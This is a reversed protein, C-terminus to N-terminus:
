DVHFQSPGLPGGLLWRRWTSSGGGGALVVKRGSGSGQALHTPAEQQMWVEPSSCPQNSTLLWSGQFHKTVNQCLLLSVRHTQNCLRLIADSKRIIHRDLVKMPQGVGMLSWPVVMAISHWPDPAKWWHVQPERKRWQTLRGRPKTNNQKIQKNTKNKQMTICKLLVIFVNGLNRSWKPFVDAMIFALFKPVTKNEAYNNRKKPLLNNYLFYVSTDSTFMLIDSRSM